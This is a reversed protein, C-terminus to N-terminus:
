SQYHLTEAYHIVQEKSYGTLFVIDEIAINKQLCKQITSIKEKQIGKEVGEERAYSVMNRVNNSELVSRKYTEMEAETLQKIEALEFLKEFIKGQVSAPRDKLKSLNKISYLWKDFNTTLEEETKKFKPLEVFAFILKNSYPTKTRMRVLQIHEVVYEKDEEFEDFLVFDLVAVMYVAKLRFDWTGKRAQKQIPFTSYFISRDRFFLQNARQMEVIFYEGNETICFIDFIAKRDTKFNGWQEPRLYQIDTILGEERIIENLFDILLDKNSETGFIKHFGFDTLPNLYRAELEAFKKM